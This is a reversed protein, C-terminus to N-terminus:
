MEEDLVERVHVFGDVPTESLERYGRPVVDPELNLWWERPQPKIRYKNTNWDWLFGNSGKWPFVPEDRRTWEVEEGDIWAQMVLIAEATEQKNMELGKKKECIPTNREQGM